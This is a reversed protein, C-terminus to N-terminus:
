LYYALMREERIAFQCTVSERTSEFSKCTVSEKSSSINCSRSNVSPTSFFLLVLGIITAALLVVPVLCEIFRCPATM